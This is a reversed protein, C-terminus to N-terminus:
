VAMYLPTNSGAPVLINKLPNSQDTKIFVMNQNYILLELMAPDIEEFNKLVRELQKSDKKVFDGDTFSTGKNFIYDYPVPDFYNTKLCPDNKEIKSKIMFTLYSFPLSIYERYILWNHNKFDFRHGRKNSLVNSPYKFKHNEALM